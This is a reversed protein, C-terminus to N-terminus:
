PNVTAAQLAFYIDEAVVGSLWFGILHGAADREFVVRQFFSQSSSFTDPQYPRLAIDPRRAHRAVLVGDAMLLLYETQLEPSYYRGVYEEPAVDDTSFDILDVRPAILTGHMGIRYGLGPAQGDVPEHFEIALDTRPNLEFSTPSLAPLEVPEGEGLVSFILRDAETRISLILGPFIEYDGAYAALQEASPREEAPASQVEYGVRDSLYIDAIAFAIAATDFDAANSLVAVSFRESPVRLLFSRYGADRGGHSWTELGRYLRREQGLAYINVTGDPLVGQERMRKIVGQGGVAGTEFNEAWRSLDRSTTKLGSPGATAYNLVEGVYGESGPRYSLARNEIVASLDDQFRTESMGLPEFIQKEAFAALRQGSVRYVVEALLSYGSNTYQYATGPAFNGKDQSLVLRLVQDDTVLDESRWGAMALLTWQDRLGSTHDLLQRLTIPGLHAAEPVYAVLQDDISLLGDRELLLISFATVQKSLSAAHFVTTQRIPVDHELDAAGVAVEAVIRGDLRVTVTVGPADPRDWSALLAQVEAARKDPEQARAKAPVPGLLLAVLVILAKLCSSM